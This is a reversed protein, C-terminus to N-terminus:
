ATTGRQYYALCHDACYQRDLIRKNPCGRLAKPDGIVARCYGPSPWIVTQAPAYTETPIPKASKRSIYAIRAGGHSVAPIARPVELKIPRPIRGEQIYRNVVRAISHRSVRFEKAIETYKMKKMLMGKIREVDSDTWKRKRSRCQFAAPSLSNM